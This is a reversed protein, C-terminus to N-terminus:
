PQKEVRKYVVDRGGFDPDDKPTHFTL